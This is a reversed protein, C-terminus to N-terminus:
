TPEWGTKRLEGNFEQLDAQKARAPAQDSRLPTFAAVQQAGVEGGALGCLQSPEVGLESLDFLGEFLDLVIQGDPRGV